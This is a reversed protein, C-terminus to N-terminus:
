KTEIIAKQNRATALQSNTFIDKLSVAAVRFIKTPCELLELISLLGVSNQQIFHYLCDGLNNVGFCFFPSSKEVTEPYLPLISQHHLTLFNKHHITISQNLVKGVIVGVITNETLTINNGSGFRKPHLIRTPNKLTVTHDLTTRIVKRWQHCTSLRRDGLDRNRSRLHNNLWLQLCHDLVENRVNVWGINGKTEILIERLNHLRVVEVRGEDRTQRTVTLGGHDLLNAGLQLAFTHTNVDGDFGIFVVQNTTVGEDVTVNNVTFTWNESGHLTTGDKDKVFDVTTRVLHHAKM